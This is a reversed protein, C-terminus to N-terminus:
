MTAGGNVRLNQGTIHRSDESILFAVAAAIDEVEALRRMPTQAKVLLKAKVPLDAIYSTQTLGPSVSNVRIGKPGLEVALTKSFALLASKSVTYAMWKAPPVGDVLTSVINVISGEGQELLYPLASKVMNFSGKVTVDINKQIAIWELTSFDELHIPIAANNVIGAIHGTIDKTFSLLSAVSDYDTVDAKYPFAKAGIAELEALTEQLGESENRYNLVVPYGLRALAKAIGAGIGGGAGSVVVAGYDRIDKPGAAKEQEHQLLKVKAEGDILKIQNRNYVETRLVLVQQSISKELVTVMVTIEEGIRAPALFRFSQEFWLAGRGPLKTGIVTSIFSATLMGHVVRNKLPTGSAFASSMHLPNDDGTLASFNDVDAETITKRHVEMDGVDIFALPSATSDRMEKRLQAKL